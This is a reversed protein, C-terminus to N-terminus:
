AGMQIKMYQSVGVGSKTEDKLVDAVMELSGFDDAIFGLGSTPNFRVRYCEVRVPSGSRAENLGDFVLRFDLGASTLVQVSNEPLPTYSIKIDAADVIASGAPIFVGSRQVTYDTGLVYTTAGSNNKVVVAGSTNVLRATSVLAGKHGKQVEDVIAAVTANNGSTGRLALALNEANFSHATLNLKVGKIRSVTDVVGGGANEYDQLEKKEEEIALQLASCNGIPLLGGTASAVYISGKGMYSINAM